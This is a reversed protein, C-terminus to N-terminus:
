FRLRRSGNPRYYAQVPIGRSQKAKYKTLYIYIPKKAKVAPSFNRQWSVAIAL